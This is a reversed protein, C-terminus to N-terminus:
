DACGAAVESTWACVVFRGDRRYAMGDIVVVAPTLSFFRLRPCPAPFATLPARQQREDRGKVANGAGPYDRRTPLSAGKSKASSGVMASLTKGNSKRSSMVLLECDKSFGCETTGGVM